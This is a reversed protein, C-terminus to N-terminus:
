AIKFIYRRRWNPTTPPVTTLSDAKLDANVRRDRTQTGGGAGRGSPPGSLRLDDQQTSKSQERSLDNPTTSLIAFGSQSRCSGM